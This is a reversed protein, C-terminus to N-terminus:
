GNVNAQPVAGPRQGLEQEVGAVEETAIGQAVVRDQDFVALARAQQLLDNMAIDHDSLPDGAQIRHAFLTQMEDMEDPSLRSLLGLLDEEYASEIREGPASQGFSAPVRSPGAVDM